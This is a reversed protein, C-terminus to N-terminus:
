FTSHQAKEKNAAKLFWFTAKQYDQKVGLGNFYMWGSSYQAELYGQEASKLYWFAAQENDDNVGLGKSSM